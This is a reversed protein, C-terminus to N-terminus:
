ESQSRQHTQVLTLQLVCELNGITLDASQFLASFSAFPDNGDKIYKGPLDDLMIDGVFVIKITKNEASASNVCVILILLIRYVWKFLQTM